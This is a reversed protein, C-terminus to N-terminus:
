KDATGLPTGVGTCFDWGKTANTTKGNAGCSGLVIDTFAKAKKKAAYVQALELPTSGFFHAANNVLAASAPSSVSTGGVVLWDLVSGNYPTTDYMWVGTSPDAVLSIDPVGRYTGVTKAIKDQYSPRPVYASSGGGTDAWASQNEFNGNQDRNVDTGGVAVVNSLVSPWGVGASDGASAFFVVSALSFDKESKEEQAYEGGSWSNSVEGGGAAAVLKAAVAEAALLDKNNNSAAEVLYVTANPALAHAMEIDLAEELEWGGTPDQGPKTGTAYVVQFSTKTIAPLGFQKSFVGLDNVATPFDYADVIAIANAGGTAVTTLTEPNCGKVFKTVGYLCALSPPTEYKGSPAANKAIETGKPVFIRINTHARVGFDEPRVASSAPIVVSGKAQRLVVEGPSAARSPTSLGIALTLACLAVTQTLCAKNM